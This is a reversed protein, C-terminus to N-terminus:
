KGLCYIYVFIYVSLSLDNVIHTYLLYVSVNSPLYHLSKRKGKSRKSMGSGSMVGVLKMEAEQISGEQVFAFVLMITGEVNKAGAM